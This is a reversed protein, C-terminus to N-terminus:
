FNVHSFDHELVRRLFLIIILLIFNLILGKKNIFNSCNFLITCLFYLHLVWGIELVRHSVGVNPYSLGLSIAYITMLLKYIDNKFYYKNTILTLAVIFTTLPFIIAYITGKKDIYDEARFTFLSLYDSIFFSVIILFLLYLLWRLMTKCNYLKNIYTVMLSQHSLISCIYFFYSKKKSVISISLLLFAIALASRMASFELTPSLLFGYVAIFFSRGRPWNHISFIKILISLFCILYIAGNELDFFIKNLFIILFWFPDKSLLFGSLLDGNQILNGIMEEGRIWNEWDYGGKRFACGLFLYICIVVCFYYDLKGKLGITILILIPFILFYLESSNLISQM